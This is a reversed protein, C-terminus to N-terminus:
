AKPPLPWLADAPRGLVQAAAAHLSTPALRGTRTMRTLWADLRGGNRAFGTQKMLGYLAASLVHMGGDVETWRQRADRAFGLREAVIQDIASALDEDLLGQLTNYGFAPDHEKLIRELLPDRALVALAATAAPGKMDVPPHMLEHGATRIVVSDDWDIATLFRQGQVRIGHPKCYELVVVEITPDLTRGTLQEVHPILDIGALKARLAPLRTAAKPEFTAKRFEAFGADRMAVLVSRLPPLMAKLQRWSEEGGDAWDDRAKLARLLVTDAGDLSGLLDGITADPGASFRNDLFPSLLIKADRAQIMLAKLTAMAPAPMRPAFDAVAKEYFRLYFADGSLPSLFSLVDFGESGRVVWRTRIPKATFGPSLPAVLTTAAAAALFRRRDM